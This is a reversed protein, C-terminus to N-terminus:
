VLIVYTQKLASHLYKQVEPYNIKSDNLHFHATKIETGRLTMDNRLQTDRGEEPGDSGAWFQVVSCCLTSSSFTCIPSSDGGLQVGEIRVTLSRNSWTWTDLRFHGTPRSFFCFSFFPSPLWIFRRSSTVIIIYYNLMIQGCKIKKVKSECFQWMLFSVFGAFVWFNTNIKTAQRNKAQTKKTM